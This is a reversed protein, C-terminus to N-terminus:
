DARWASEIKGFLKHKKEFLQVEVPEGPNPKEIPEGIPFWAVKYDNDHDQIEEQSGAPVLKKEKKGKSSGAKRLNVEPALVCNWLRQYTEGAKGVVVISPGEITVTSDDQVFSFDFGFPAGLEVKVTQGAAVKYSRASKGPLMLAKSMQTKKGTAVQGAYLEYTGVPVEVKKLGGNVLDYFLREQNGTGRVLVWSAEVGKLDLQLTGSEVDSRSVLIDNGKESPELKYWLDGIKQLESWPRAVKSEGIVVSDVDRQFDGDRVGIYAWEKPPSGYLGDLNDDIVQLRLGNVLGVLSAAPAVYISMQNEDPAMNLRFGQYTDQQQGIVALFAWPRQEDGQGLTLQVPAIKGTLPIEVEGQGDGDLDVGAKAQATRVITPSSEMTPITATSGAKTLYVNCWIQYNSDATYLPRQIGEIDPVLEFTAGLPTPAYATDAAAKAAARAAPGKAPDGYGDYELKDFRQKGLTYLQDKLDVKERAQLFLNWAECARKLDAQDGLLTEDFCEAYARYSESAMYDDGLQGFADGFGDFELGLGPLKTADKADRAAVFDKVKLLYRDLLARRDKKFSGTLRLSFYDYQIQVFQSDFAKRWAKGLADIEEELTDNSGVSIAECTEVVALIGEFEHKKLLAAMEDQAHVQMLKRFEQMFASDRQGRLPAAALLLFLGGIPIRLNARMNMGRVPRGAPALFHLPGPPPRALLPV